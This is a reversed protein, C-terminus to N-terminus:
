IALCRAPHRNSSHRIRRLEAATVELLDTGGPLYPRLFGSANTNSGRQWPSRRGYFYTPTDTAVTFDAHNAM